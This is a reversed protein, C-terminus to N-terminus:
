HISRIRALRGNEEPIKERLPQKQLNESLNERSKGM